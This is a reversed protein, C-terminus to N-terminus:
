DEASPSRRDSGRNRDIRWGPVTRGCARRRRRLCQINKQEFAKFGCGEARINYIDPILHTVSYNGDTNTTTEFTTGKTASDRHSQRGRRGRGFSRHHNRFYQRIGSSRCGPAGVCRVALAFVLAVCLVVLNRIKMQLRRLM